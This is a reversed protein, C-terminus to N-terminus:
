STKAVDKNEAPIITFLYPICFIFFTLKNRKEFLNYVSTYVGINNDLDLFTVHKGHHEGKLKLIKRLIKRSSSFLEPYDNTYSIIWM